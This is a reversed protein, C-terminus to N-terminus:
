QVVAVPGRATVGYDGGGGPWTGVRYRRSLDIRLYVNSKAAPGTWCVDYVTAWAFGDLREMGTWGGGSGECYAAGGDFIPIPGLLMHGYDDANVGSCPQQEPLDGWIEADWPVGEEIAEGIARLGSTNEGNNLGLEENVTALTCAESIQGTEYYEWMCDHNLDLHERIWSANPSGDVRAWGTNDIGAPNLVFVMDMIQEPDYVDWLCMPLGFPLYYPVEGAPLDGLLAAVSRAAAGLHDREFAVRSFWPQLDARLSRVEVANIQLADTTPAFAGAEWRGLVIDGTPDNDPNLSLVVPQGHAQNMAGVGVATARARELGLETGNLRQAGAVAAADTAAQLQAAVLRAYGLDIALAAVGALVMLGIALQIAIAARRASRM